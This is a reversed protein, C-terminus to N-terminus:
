RSTKASSAGRWGACLVQESEYERCFCPRVSAMGLLLFAAGSMYFPTAAWCFNRPWIPANTAGSNNRARRGTTQGDAHQRGAAQM